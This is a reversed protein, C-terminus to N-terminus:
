RGLFTLCWNAPLSTPPSIVGDELLEELASADEEDLGNDDQDSHGARQDAIDTESRSSVLSRSSKIKCVSFLTEETM